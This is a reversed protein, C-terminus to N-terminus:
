PIQSETKNMLEVIRTELRTIEAENIKHQTLLPNLRNQIDTLSDSLTSLDIPRRAFLMKLELGIMYQAKITDISEQIVRQYIAYTKNLEDQMSPNSSSPVPEGKKTELTSLANQYVTESMSLQQVGQWLRDSIADLDSIGTTLIM